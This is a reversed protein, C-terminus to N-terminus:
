RTAPINLQQGPTLAVTPLDNLTRVADIWDRPDSGPAANAKALSWLTDGTSVVVTGGVRLPVPHHAGLLLGTLGLSATLVAISVVARGRRTLRIRSATQTTTM